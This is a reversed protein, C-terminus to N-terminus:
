QVILAAPTVPAGQFSSVTVTTTGSAVATVAAGNNVTAISPSQTSWTVLKTVDRHAGNAYVAFAKLGKRTGAAMTSSAPTVEVRQLAPANTSGNQVIVHSANERFNRGRSFSTFSVNSFPTSQGGFGSVAGRGDFFEYQLPDLCYDIRHGGTGPPIASFTVLGTSPQVGVFGDMPFTYATGNATLNWSTTSHNLWMDLGNAFALHIRADRLIDLGGYQDIVTQLSKMQGNISYEIVTPPAQTYRSQLANTMHYEKLLDAHFETNGIGNPIGTSQSFGAKGFTLEYIRYRDLAPETLPYVVTGNPALMQPGDTPSFFREYNGNGHNVQLPNYVRWDIDPVIPWGTVSRAWGRRTNPITAPNELTGINIVREVSDCFGAWL